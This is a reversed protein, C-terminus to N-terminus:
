KIVVLKLLKFKLGKPFMEPHNDGFSLFAEITDFTRKAIDGSLVNYIEYCANETDWRSMVFHNSQNLRETPISWHYELIAVSGSKMIVDDFHNTYIETQYGKDRFYNRISRARIGIIGGLISGRNEEFWKIIDAPHNPDGLVHLANYAAIWGCGNHAGNAMGMIADKTPATLVQDYIYEDLKFALSRNFLYSSHIRKKHNTFLYYQLLKSLLKSVNLNERSILENMSNAAYM